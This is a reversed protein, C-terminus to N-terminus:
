QSLQIDRVIPNHDGCQSSSVEDGSFPESTAIELDGQKFKIAFGTIDGQTSFSFSYAGSESTTVRLQDDRWFYVSVGSLPVGNADKVIGQFQYNKFCKEAKCGSTGLGFLSLLILIWKKM